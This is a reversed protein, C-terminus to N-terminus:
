EAPIGFHEKLAARGDFLAKIERKREESVDADMDKLLQSLPLIKGGNAWHGAPVEEYIAFIGSSDDDNKAGMADRLNKTVEALAKSKLESNLIGEPAITRALGMKRGKIYTNDFRGGVAWSTGPLTHFWVWGIARAHDTAHGLELNMMTVLLTEALKARVGDSLEERTFVEVFPM